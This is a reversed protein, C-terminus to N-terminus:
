VKKGARINIEYMKTLLLLFTVLFYIEDLLGSKLYKVLHVFFDFMLVNNCLLGFTSSWICLFFSFM